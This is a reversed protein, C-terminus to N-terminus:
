PQIETGTETETETETETKTEPSPSPSPAPFPSAAPHHVKVMSLLQRTRPDKNGCTDM